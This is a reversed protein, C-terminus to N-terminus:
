DRHDDLNNDYDIIECLADFGTKFDTTYKVEYTRCVIEVNAQRYFGDPCVVILKCCDDAYLGLELLSVPSKTKPDFYMFIYDALELASLEWSVQESFYPNDVSQEQTPDFDGRRPNFIVLHEDAYKKGLVDIVKDQWNEAIGMEISGALFITSPGDPKTYSPIENPATIVKM